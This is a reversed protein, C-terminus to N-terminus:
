FDKILNQNLKNSSIVEGAAAIAETSPKEIASPSRDVAISSILFSLLSRRITCCPTTSTHIAAFVDSILQL